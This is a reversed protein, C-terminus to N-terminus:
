TITRNDNTELKTILSKQFNSQSKNLHFTSPEEEAISQVRSRIVFGKMAEREWALFERKLEQYRSLNFNPSSMIEELQQQLLKRKFRQECARKRCYNISIRKIGPKFINEWWHDVNSSRSPHTSMEEIFVKVLDVYGDEDLVATNLKWLDFSKRKTVKRPTPTSNIYGVVPRHDGFPLNHTQINSFTVPQQLYIRDLRAQGTACTYTWGPENKRINRWVDTLSLAKVMERLSELLTLRIKPPTTKSSNRDELEDVANFDGLIIAPAKYQTVYAPVTQRLFVDRNIKNQDGSPAYICVFALGGVEMALLRGEPEFLLNKARLGHRVLIATGHKRPGLNTFMQYHNTLIPCSQFTVEQLCVIDLNQQLFFDLIIKLKEPSSINAINYTAINTM